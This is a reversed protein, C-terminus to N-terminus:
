VVSKRDIYKQITPVLDYRRVERGGVKVLVADLIGDRTLQEIRRPGDFGFLQAIVRPEYLNQQREEEGTCGHHTEISCQIRQHEEDGINLKTKM